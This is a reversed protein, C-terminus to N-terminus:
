FGLSSLLKKMTSSDDEGSISVTVWGPARVMFMDARPGDRVVGAKSSRIIVTVTGESAPRELPPGIGGGPYLDFELREHDELCTSGREALENKVRRRIEDFDARFTYIRLDRSFPPGLLLPEQGDLFGFATRPQDLLILGLTFAVIVLASGCFWWWKRFSKPAVSM